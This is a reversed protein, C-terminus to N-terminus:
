TFPLSDNVWLEGRKVYEFDRVSLVKSKPFKAVSVSNGHNGSLLYVSSKTQSVLFGIHGTPASKKGRYTIVIDGRQSEDLFVEKRFDAYAKARQPYLLDVHIGNDHLMNWVWVACWALEGDDLHSYNYGTAVSFTEFWKQIIPNSGTTFEQVGVYQLAHYLVNKKDM